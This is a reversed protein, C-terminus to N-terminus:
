RISSLSAVQGQADRCHLVGVGIEVVPHEAFVGRGTPLRWPSRAAWSVNVSGPVRAVDFLADILADEAARCPPSWALAGAASAKQERITNDFLM